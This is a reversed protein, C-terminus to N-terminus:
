GITPLHREGEDRRKRRLPGRDRLNFQNECGQCSWPYLGLLSLVSRQM